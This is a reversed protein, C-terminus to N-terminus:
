RWCAATRPGPRGPSAASWAPPPTPPWRPPARASHRVSTPVQAHAGARVQHQQVARRVGGRRGARRGGPGHRRASRGGRTRLDGGTAHAQGRDDDFNSATRAPPAARDATRCRIPFATHSPEDAWRITLSSQYAASPGHHDPARPPHLRPAPPPVLDARYDFGDQRGTTPSPLRRRPHPHGVRHDRHQLLPGLVAPTDPSDLVGLRSRREVGPGNGTPM